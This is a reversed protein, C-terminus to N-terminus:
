QRDHNDRQPVIRSGLLSQLPQVHRQLINAVYKEDDWSKDAYGKYAADMDAKMQDFAKKHFQKASQVRAQLSSVLNQRRTTPEPIIEEEEEESVDM